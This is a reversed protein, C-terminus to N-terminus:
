QGPQAASSAGRARRVRAGGHFAEGKEGEGDGGEAGGQKHGVGGSLFFGGGFGRGIAVDHHQFEFVIGGRIFDGGDDFAELRQLCLERGDLGELPASVDARFLVVQAEGVAEGQCELALLRQLFVVEVLLGVLVESGAEARHEILHEDEVVDRLSKGRSPM